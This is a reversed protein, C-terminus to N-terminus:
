SHGSCERSTGIFWPWADVLYIGFPVWWVFDNTVCVAVTAVPWAGTWIQRALGIPGLVKGALGVAAILWGREPCRAVDLYLIGYLGIVMALCIFVQPYNAAPMAAFRFLWQPDAATYLGWAINYLGALTFTVQHLKRRPMGPSPTMAGDKHVPEGSELGFRVVQTSARIVPM